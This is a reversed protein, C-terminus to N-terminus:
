AGGRHGMGRGGIGALRIPQATKERLGLGTYALVNFLNHKQCFTVKNFQINLSKVDQFKVPHYLIAHLM